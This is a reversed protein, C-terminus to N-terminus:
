QGATLWLKSEVEHFHNFSADLQQLLKEIQERDAQPDHLADRLSGATDSLSQAGLAFARASDYLNLNAAEAPTPKYLLRWPSHRVEVSAEKLNDSTTKISGVIGDLKSRNQAVLSRLSGTLESANEATKQIDLLASQATTLSANIKKLLEGLQEAVGPLKQAITDSATHLNKITGRLDPKTEGLLDSVQDLAKTASTTVTDVKGNAHEILAHASDVTRTVRPVTQMDLQAIASELHPATRGITALLSTKPDPLGPLAQGAALAPASATGVSQINLDAAGTLTSQVAVVADTHIVYSAPLTFSVLLRPDGAELGEPHIDRVIGVKFGGIRVDDGARLGGLDDTLKFSATRTQSPGIGAGNIWIVVTVALVFTIIIFAGAKLENREKSM